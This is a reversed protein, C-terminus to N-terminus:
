TMGNVHRAHDFRIFDSIWGLRSCKEDLLGWVLLMDRCM